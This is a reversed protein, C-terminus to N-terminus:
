GQQRLVSGRIESAGRQGFRRHALGEAGAQRDLMRPQGKGADFRHPAREFRKVRTQCRRGPWGIGCTVVPGEATVAGSESPCPLSVRGERPRERPVLSQSIPPNANPQSTSPQRVTSIHLILGSVTGLGRRRGTDARISGHSVEQTGPTKTPPSGPTQTPFVGMVLGTKTRLQM